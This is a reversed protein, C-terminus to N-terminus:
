LRKTFEGHPGREVLCHHATLILDDGIVTGTCTMNPGVVRVIADDPVALALPRELVRVDALEEQSSPRVVVARKAQFMQCGEVAALAGGCAAVRLGAEIWRRM